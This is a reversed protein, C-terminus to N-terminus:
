FIFHPPKICPLEQCQYVKYNYSVIKNLGSMVFTAFIAICQLIEYFYPFQQLKSYLYGISNINIDGLSLTVTDGQIYSTHYM